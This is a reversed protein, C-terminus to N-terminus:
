ECLATSKNNVRNWSEEYLATEVSVPPVSVQKALRNIAELAEKRNSSPILRHRILSSYVHRDVAIPIIDLDYLWAIFKIYFPATKNRSVYPIHDLYAWIDKGERIMSLIINTFNKEENDVLLKCTYSLREIDTTVRLHSAYGNEKESHIKRLLESLEAHSFEIPLHIIKRFLYMATIINIIDKRSQYTTRDIFFGLSYRWDSDLVRKLEPRIGRMTKQSSNLLPGLYDRVWKDHRSEWSRVHKDIYSKDIM